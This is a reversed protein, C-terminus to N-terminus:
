LADDLAQSWGKEVRRATALEEDLKKVHKPPPPPKGAADAEAAAAADAREAQTRLGRDELRGRNRSAQKRGEIARHYPEFLAQVQPPLVTEALQRPLPAIPILRSEM